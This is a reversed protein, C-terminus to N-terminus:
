INPPYSGHTRYHFVVTLFAWIHLGVVVLITAVYLLHLPDEPPVGGRLFTQDYIHVTLLWFMVYTGHSQHWKWAKPGLYQYAVNNSTIALIVAIIVGVTAAFAWASMGVVFGVVDWGMSRFVLAVHALSWGVFWIGLESRWNLPFNGSYRRSISPWIKTVPGIIMVLFLLFWPIAAVIRSFPYGVAWLLSALALSGVVVAGHHKGRNFPDVTM